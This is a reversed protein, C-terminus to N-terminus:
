VVAGLGLCDIVLRKRPWSPLRSATPLRLASNSTLLRIHETASIASSRSQGRRLRISFVQCLSPLRAGIEEISPCRSSSIKLVPSGASPRPLRAISPLGRASPRPQLHRHEM